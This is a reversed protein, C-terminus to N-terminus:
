NGQVSFTGFQGDKEPRWEGIGCVFGGANLFNLIQEKTYKGSTNVRITIDAYWNDFQGRYRIDPKNQGIKVMDERMVPADSHIEVLGDKDGDIFFSGRLAAMSDIWGMRYAASIAALKIATVPFGFRAGGEIAKIFGEETKEEPEGEIWYMSDIFERVPDKPEKSETKTANTMSDLLQKKAKEAWKHMVLATMGVLRVNLKEIKLPKIEIVTEKTAKSTKGAMM